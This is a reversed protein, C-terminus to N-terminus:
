RLTLPSVPMVPESGAVHLLRVARTTSSTEFRARTVPVSGALQPNKLTHSPRVLRCLRLTFEQLLNVPLM